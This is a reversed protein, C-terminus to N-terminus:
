YSLACVVITEHANSSVVVDNNTVSAAEAETM